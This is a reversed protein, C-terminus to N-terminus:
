IAAEALWTQVAELIPQPVLGKDPDEAWLKFSEILRYDVEAGLSHFHQGLTKIASEGDLSNANSEILLIRGAPKRKMAFLNLKVLNDILSPHLGFGLLEAPDSATEAKSLFHEQKEQHWARLDVLYDSGIVAPEWLVLGEVDDRGGAVLAALSAGLRLGILFVTDVRSRRKLEQIAVRVDTQWQEFAGDRDEGASDGTGFYDFRLVPFGQRSLRLGLQSLPRQTRIYEQGWPNCILVAYDREQEPHPLYYLGFLRKETPGFYFTSISDQTTIELLNV